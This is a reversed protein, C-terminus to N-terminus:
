LILNDKVNLKELTPYHIYKASLIKCTSIDKYREKEQQTAFTLCGGLNSEELPLVSMGKGHKLRQRVAQRSDLITNWPVTTPTAIKSKKAVFTKKSSKSTSAKRKLMTVIIASM